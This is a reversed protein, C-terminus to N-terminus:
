ADYSTKVGLGGYNIQGALNAIYEKEVSPYKNKISLAIGAGL